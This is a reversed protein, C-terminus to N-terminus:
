VEFKTEVPAVPAVPADGFLEEADDATAVPTVDDDDDDDIGNFASVSESQSHPLLPNLCEILEM